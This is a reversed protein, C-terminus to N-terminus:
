PHRYAGLKRDRDVWQQVRPWALRLPGQTTTLAQWLLSDIEARDPDPYRAQGYPEGLACRVLAAYLTAPSGGAYGYAFGTQDDHLLPVPDVRMGGASTPTLAFVAQHDAAIVTQETWPQAPLGTPWEAHFSPAEEQRNPDVIVVLRGAPDRLVERVSGALDDIVAQFGAPLIGGISGALLGCGARTALAAQADDVKTLTQRWLDVVPGDWTDVLRTAAQSAAGAAEPRPGWLRGRLWLSAELMADGLPDDPQAARDREAQWLAALEAAAQDPDLPAMAAAQLDLEFPIPLEPQAPRAALIWGDGSTPLQRLRQLTEQYTELTADALVSTAAPYQEAFGTELWAQIRDRTPPWDTITDTVTLTGPYARAARVSDPTCTGELWLRVPHGTVRAVHQCRVLGEFSVRPQAPIGAAAETRGFRRRPRPPSPPTDAQLRYLNLVEATPREAGAEPFTWHDFSAQPWIVLLVQPWFVPRILEAATAALRDAAVAAEGMAVLHVIHGQPTDWVTAHVLHRGRDLRPRWEGDYVVPAPGVAAAEPRYLWVPTDGSARGTQQCWADITAPYWLPRRDPDHRDPRPLKGEAQLARARSEAIGARRAFQALTHLQPFHNPLTMFGM